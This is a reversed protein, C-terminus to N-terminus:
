ILDSQSLNISNSTKSVGCERAIVHANESDTNQDLVARKVDYLIGYGAILVAALM